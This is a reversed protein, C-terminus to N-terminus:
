QGKIVTRLRMIDSNVSSLVYQYQLATRTLETMETDQNVNNGDLRASETQTNNVQYQSGQIAAQVASANGSNSAARLKSSFAEEFTVYQAKYGPTDVNVINNSTVQQKKWLFELSKNSMSIQNGFISNM